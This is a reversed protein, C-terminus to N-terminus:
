RRLMERMPGVQQKHFCALASRCRWRSILIWDKCALLTSNLRHMRGFILRKKRYNYRWCSSATRPSLPEFQISEPFRRTLGPNMSILRNIDADYGALIINLRQAIKPKTICDVLEDMAEKAFHGEALRYAEDIFLTKGLTSKLLKQTKPGTQGIYHGVLVTASVEEVENSALLGMDYYVQGM